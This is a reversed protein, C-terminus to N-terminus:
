SGGTTTSPPTPAPARASPGPGTLVVRAPPTGGSSPAAPDIIVVRRIVRRVIVRQAPTKTHDSTAGVAAKPSAVLASVGTVFTAAGTAWALGKVSTKPWRARHRGETM